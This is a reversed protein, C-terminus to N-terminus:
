THEIFPKLWYTGQILSSYSSEIDLEIFYRKINVNYICAYFYKKFNLEFVSSSIFLTNM